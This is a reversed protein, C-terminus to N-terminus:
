LAVKGKYDGSLVIFYKLEPWVQGQYGRMGSSAQNM